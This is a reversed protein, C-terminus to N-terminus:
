NKGLQKWFPRNNNATIRRDADRQWEELNDLRGTNIKVMQGQAAVSVTLANVHNVLEKNSNVWSQMVAIGVIIIVSLVTGWIHLTTTVKAAGIVVGQHEGCTVPRRKEEYEIEKDKAM